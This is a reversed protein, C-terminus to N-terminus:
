DYSTDDGIEVRIAPPAGIMLSKVEFPLPASAGCDSFDFFHVMLNVVAKPRCPEAQREYM